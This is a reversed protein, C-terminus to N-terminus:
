APVLSAFGRDFYVLAAAARDDAHVDVVDCLVVGHTGSDFERVVRCSFAALADALRPAGEGSAAWEGELFRDGGAVGEVQGAFRRALREHTPRLLNVCLAGSRRVLDYARVSRNLCVLLRPPQASASCVATATLGAQEGGHRATVITCAGALRAMGARFQEATVAGTATSAPADIDTDAWAPPLHPHM